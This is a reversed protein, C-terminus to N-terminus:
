DTLFKFAILGCNANNNLSLLQATTIARLDQDIQLLIVNLIVDFGPTVIM